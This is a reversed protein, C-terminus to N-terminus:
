TVYRHLWTIGSVECCFIQNFVSWLLARLKVSAPKLLNPLYITEIGLRLGLRALNRKDIESLNNVSMSLNSTKASGLGEYVQYAIGLAKGSLDKNIQEEKNVENEIVTNQKEKDLEKLNNLVPKELNIAESLINKINNEVAESIRLEIQKIQEDSLLEYNNVNIKPSYINEGNILTAVKNNQWLISVDNNFKFAANDSMLLERVRREIEKPLFEAEIM